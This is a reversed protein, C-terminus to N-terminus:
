IGLEKGLDPEKPAARGLEAAVDVDEQVNYGVERLYALCKKTIREGPAIVPVGPPYPAVQRLCVCGVADKLPLRSRRATLAAAPSLVLEPAPPEPPAMPPGYLGPFDRELDKLGQWLREVDEKTNEGSLLFVVHDRDAMEPFVGQAELREKVQFGDAAIADLTLTFRTPDLEGRTKLGPFESKLESVTRAAWALGERGEESELKSRAWDLSALIPYSPSSTGAVSAAWRLDHPKFVVGDGFLLAAQGYASVTKHASTVVLDAGLFPNEALLPKPLLTKQRFANHGETLFPLHCGHAADVVLRAGWGHAIQALGPIDSLVGYYTPSTICVTTIKKGEADAQELAMHLGAPTIPQDQRRPLYTPELACLGLANYVSRHSCRDVLVGPGLRACLLLAAHIGQTSGGTLFQCCPYGWARAWLAEAQAIVDDGAYLDGTDPLETVDLAATSALAELEEMRGKHGPMHFPAPRLRIHELLANLLPTNM